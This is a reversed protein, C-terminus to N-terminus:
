RSRFAYNHDLHVEEIKRRKNNIGGLKRRKMGPNSTIPKQTINSTKPTQVFNTEVFSKERHFPQQINSVAKNPIPAPLRSSPTALKSMAMGAEKTVSLDPSAEEGIPTVLDSKQKSPMRTVSSERSMQGDDFIGSDNM